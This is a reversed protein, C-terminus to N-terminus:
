RYQYPRSGNNFDAHEEAVRLAGEKTLFDDPMAPDVPSVIRFAMRKNANTTDSENLRSIELPLISWHLKGNPNYESPAISRSTVVDQWPSSGGLAVEHTLYDWKISEVITLEDTTGYYDGRYGLTGVGFGHAIMNEAFQERAELCKEAFENIDAKRHKCTRRTHGEEKCYSCRRHKGRNNSKDLSRKHNALLREAHRRSDESLDDEQLMKEYNAINDKHMQKKQPCSSRNHGIEYCYGCRVTRKYNGNKDKTYAM